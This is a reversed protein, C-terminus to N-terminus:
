QECHVVLAEYPQIVFTSDLNKRQYNSIMVDGDLEIALAQTKQSLNVVIRYRGDKGIRDYALFEKPLSLFQIEGTRLSITQNRLAILRQYFHWISDTDNRNQAVNIKVYNPNIMLWPEGTTFGANVSNDWHMPTRSHDRCIILVIKLALWDPVLFRTLMRHVSRSVVDHIQSISDFPVNTMGIEQGQYMFPTGRLTLNLTAIMTASAYHFTRDHGFRSVSRPGDHNEFFVTNWPLNQQWKKLYRIVNAARYGPKLVMHEFVFATTLEDGRLYRRVSKVEHDLHAEGVIFADYPQWVDKYFEQLLKHNGNKSLYHESGVGLLRRKGDALSQKHTLNIVDCRFGAVGLELWFRMIQKVEEVVRPNKYNLDPQHKTFLHLYYEGSDEDKTWAPGTFFSTWNNPPKEGGWWTRRPKRWIYYDRYGPSDARSAKFWKHEDSTHNLVLDMIIKIDRAEAEKILKKMDALTGFKPDIDCYDAVDYGHDHDPSPYVPSLWLAGIGLEKLYDLKSLIGPIDGIGDGNSDSFSRPYIQYIVRDHWWKNM